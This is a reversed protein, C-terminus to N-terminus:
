KRKRYHKQEPHKLAGIPLELWYVSPKEPWSWFGGGYVATAYYVKNGIMRLAGRKVGREKSILYDSSEKEYLIGDTKIYTEM